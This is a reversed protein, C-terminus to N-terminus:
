VFIFVLNLGRTGRGLTGALRLQRPGSVSGPCRQRGIWEEIGKRAWAASVAFSDGKHDESHQRQQGCRPEARLKDQYRAARSPRKHGCKTVRQGDRQVKVVECMWQGQPCDYLGFESTKLLDSLLVGNHLHVVNEKYM